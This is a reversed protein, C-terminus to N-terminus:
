SEVSPPSVRWHEACQEITAYTQALDREIGGDAWEVRCDAGALSPEALIVVRGTYGHAACLADIDARLGDACDASVRVVIRPERHLKHLCDGVLAEVEKLPFAALARGALARGVELAVSASEQRLAVIVGDFEAILKVVGQAVAGLAAARAAAAQAETEAKGAALAERRITEAEEASYSSRARAGNAPAGNTAFVTDFNFKVPRNPQM